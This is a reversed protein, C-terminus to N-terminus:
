GRKLLEDLVHAALFGNGGTLLVKSMMQILIHFTTNHNSLVSCGKLWLNITYSLHSAQVVIKVNYTNSNVNVYNFVFRCDVQTVLCV